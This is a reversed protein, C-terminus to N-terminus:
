ADCWARYIPELAERLQQKARFVRSKVTGESCALIGSIERYPLGDIERLVLAQRYESPLDDMARGMTHGLENRLARADSTELARNTGEPGHRWNWAAQQQWLDRQRQRSKRWDLCCNIGIRHLWTYFQSGARFSSLSRYAKLFVEQALDSADEPNGVLPYIMRVIRDYHRQTLEAFAREHGKRTLEILETDRAESPRM